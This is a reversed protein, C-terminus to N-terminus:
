TPNSGVIEINSRAFVTRAKSWAAVAIPLILPLFRFTTVEKFYKVIDYGSLKRFKKVGVSPMSINKNWVLKSKEFCGLNLM